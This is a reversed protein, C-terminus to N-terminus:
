TDSNNLKVEGHDFTPNVLPSEFHIVENPTVKVRKGSGCGTSDDDDDAAAANASNAAIAAAEHPRKRSKTATQKM